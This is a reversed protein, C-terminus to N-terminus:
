SYSKELFKLSVFMLDYRGDEVEHKVVIQRRQNNGQHGLYEEQHSYFTGAFLAIQQTKRHMAIDTHQVHGQTASQQTERLVVAASSAPRGMVGSAFYHCYLVGDIEVPKLFPAVEFGYDKVGLDNIDVKGSMEPVDDAFRLIRQEHNGTTFVMRPQYGPISSFPKILREMADRGAKVDAVYRRGEFQIKGKDYSSLSPMDWHDGIHIIVDPRKEAIYNGAWELHDTNVGPKAQTDPIVIHMRGLRKKEYVRKAEKRFSPKMGRLRATAARRDVADASVQCRDGLARRTLHGSGYEEVWDLAQQALDDPLKPTPM